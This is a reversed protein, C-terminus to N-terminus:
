NCRKGGGDDTGEKGGAKADEGTKEDATGQETWAL